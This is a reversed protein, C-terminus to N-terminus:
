SLTSSSLYRSQFDRLKLGSVYIGTMSVLDFVAIAQNESAGETPRQDGLLRTRTPPVNHPKHIDKLESASLLSESLLFVFCVADEPYSLKKQVFAIQSLHGIYNHHRQHWPDRSISSTNSSGSASFGRYIPVDSRARTQVQATLDEQSPQHFLSISAPAKLPIM